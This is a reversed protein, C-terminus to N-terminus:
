SNVSIFICGGVSSASSPLSEGFGRGVSFCFLTFM